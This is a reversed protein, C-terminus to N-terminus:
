KKKEKFLKEKVDCIANLYVNPIYKIINYLKVAGILTFVSAFIWVIESLLHIGDMDLAIVDLDSLFIVLIILYSCSIGVILWWFVKKLPGCLNSISSILFVVAVIGAMVSILGVFEIM